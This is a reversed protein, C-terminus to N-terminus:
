LFGELWRMASGADAVMVLGPPPAPRDMMVVPIGRERAAALKAATASGGSNKTVLVEIDRGELLAREAELSFPGTETITEAGPPLHAPDPPDVSRIVYDHQPVARFPELEKQGITLLVRRPAEGLAQAASPMDPVRLWDDGPGPQWAPRELRLLPIPGAAALAHRTMQAAFPHTADVLLQIRAEALYRRLGEIGGFGGIRWPIPQPRPARTAGALSLVSQFRPDAALLRALASAETTGGLLLVRM